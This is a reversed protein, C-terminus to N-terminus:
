SRGGADHLIAALDDPRTLMPWHWDPLAVYRWADGGMHRLLPNNAMARATDEDLTCLIGLRPLAEWAGTLKAPTIATAWPHPTARETLLRVAASTDVQPTAAAIAAWDPPPLLWGDGEAAVQQESRAREEPGGFDVQAAGDPLPGTDLFVLSAARDPCRDAVAPTVVAGAYSHGVLVVDRLDEYELLNVVDTVHTDLDTGPGGLHVREGLGTLTVAYVDHGRARLKEAVSRWAWGGLWFGPVLVYTTMGAVNPGPDSM